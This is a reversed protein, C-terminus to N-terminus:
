NSFKGIVLNGEHKQFKRNERAVANTRFNGFLGNEHQLSHGVAEAMLKLKLGFGNASRRQRRGVIRQRRVRHLSTQSRRRHQQPRHPTRREIVIRPM